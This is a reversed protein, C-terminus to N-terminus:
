KCKNAQEEGGPCDHGFVPCSLGSVGFEIIYRNLDPFADKDTPSCSVWGKGEVFKVFYGLRICEKTEEEHLPMNEILHEYKCFKM